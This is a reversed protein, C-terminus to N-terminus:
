KFYMIKRVLSFSSEPFFLVATNETLIQIEKTTKEDSDIHICKILLYIMTKIASHAYMKLIASQAGLVTFFM